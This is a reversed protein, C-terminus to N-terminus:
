KTVDDNRRLHHEVRQHHRLNDLSLDVTGVITRLWNRITGAGIGDRFGTDIESLNPSSCVRCVVGKRPPRAPISLSNNM